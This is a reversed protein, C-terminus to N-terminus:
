RRVDGVNKILSDTQEGSLAGPHSGIKGFARIDSSILRQLFVRSYFGVELSKTILGLSKM